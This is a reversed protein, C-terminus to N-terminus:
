DADLYFAVQSTESSSLKNKDKWQSTQKAREIERGNIRNSEGETYGNESELKRNQQLVKKHTCETQRDIQGVYHTICKM